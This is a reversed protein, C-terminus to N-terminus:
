RTMKSLMRVVELCLSRGRSSVSLSIFGRIDSIILCGGVEKASCLAHRYFRKRDKSGPEKGSGESINLLISCLARDLHDLVSAAKRPPNQLTPALLKLLELAKQFVTLREFDFADQPEPQSRKGRSGEEEVEGQGKRGQM